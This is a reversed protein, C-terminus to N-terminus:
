FRKRVQVYFRNYTDQAEFTGEYNMSLSINEFAQWYFSVEGVQQRIDPIYEPMLYNVFHYGIGTQIKGGLLNKNLNIGALYRDMYGSSLYTGSVTASVNLLPVQNYTYYGYVNKSPSPDSKMFRYGSQVGAMMKNNIRWSGGFRYGQRLEDELIRDTFSKYTEYYVVNKRADYSGSISINRTMLYRLSFYVGTLSFTSQPTDEALEYLDIEFTSLLYLNKVLSNSHQFYMFRRDTVSGNMQQMFALSSETFTKASGTNMAVYAGYQFLDSNFGYDEYDPRFGALAGLSLNGFTKEFQVGDSAGISSIRPNIRRGLSVRASKNIDYRVSLNYIKLADSLNDKVDQWEGAKHRFSVYTEFSFKSDAINKIDLSLTYRFRQSNPGDSNTIDTYSAASVSGRLSQKRTIASSATATTDQQPEAQLASVVLATDPKVDTKPIAPTIRAIILHDIPLVLESIATCVCSVSSLSNVRLVPILREESSIYLTDGPSIGATSKFKVYINQSSVFSVKGLMNEKAQQGSLGNVFLVLLIATLYERM